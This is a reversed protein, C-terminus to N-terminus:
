RSENLRELNEPSMLTSRNDGNFHVEILGKYRNWADLVIGIAGNIENKVLDGVKM